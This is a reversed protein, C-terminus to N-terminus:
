GNVEPETYAIYKLLINKVEKKLISTKIKINNKNITDELEGILSRLALIMNYDYNHDLDGIWLRGGHCRSKIGNINHIIDFYLRYPYRPNWIYHEYGMQGCRDCKVNIDRQPFFTKMPQYPKVIKPFKQNAYPRYKDIISKIIKQINSSSLRSTLLKGIEKYIRIFIGAHLEDYDPKARFQEPIRNIILGREREFNGIYCIKRKNNYSPHIYELYQYDHQGHIPNKDYTVDNYRRKLFHKTGMM